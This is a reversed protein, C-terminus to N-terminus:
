KERYREVSRVRCRGGWSRGGRWQQGTQNGRPTIQAFNKLCDPCAYSGREKKITEAACGAGGPL